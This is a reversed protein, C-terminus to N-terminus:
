KENLYTSVLKGLDKLEFPKQLFGDAKCDKTIEGLSVNASVFILPIDKFAPDNKIKRCIDRGDKGKLMTDLLILDPNILELHDVKEASIDVIVQYGKGELYISLIENIDPDDDIILIKKTMNLAAPIIITFNSIQLSDLRLIFLPSSISSEKL